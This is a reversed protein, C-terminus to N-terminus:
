MHIGHYSAQRIRKLLILIVYMKWGRLGDTSWEEYQEENDFEKFVRYKKARGRKKVVEDVRVLQNSMDLIIYLM